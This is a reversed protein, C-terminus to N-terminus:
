TFKKYIVINNNNLYKYAGLCVYDAYDSIERILTLHVDVQLQCIGSQFGHWTEDLSPMFGPKDHNLCGILIKSIICITIRPISFLNRAQYIEAIALLLRVIRKPFHLM